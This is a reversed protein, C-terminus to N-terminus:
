RLMELMLSEEDGITFDDGAVNVIEIVSGFWFEFSWEGDDVCGVFSGKENVEELVNLRGTWGDDCSIVAVKEIPWEYFL